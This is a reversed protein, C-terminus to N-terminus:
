HYLKERETESITERLEGNEDVYLRPVHENEIPAIKLEYALFLFILTIIIAAYGIKLFLHLLM